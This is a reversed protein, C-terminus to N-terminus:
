VLRILASRVYFTQSSLTAGSSGATQQWRLEIKDGADCQMIASVACDGGGTLAARQSYSEQSVNSSNLRMITLAGSMTAQQAATYGSRTQYGTASIAYVGAETINWTKVTIAGTTGTASVYGTSDFGENVGEWTWDDPKGIVKDQTAKKGFAIGTGGKKINIIRNVPSIYYATQTDLEYNDVARFTMSYGTDADVLGNGLIYRQGPTIEYFDDEGDDIIVVPTAESSECYVGLSTISLVAPSATAWATISFYGGDMDRDGNSDCRYVNYTIEPPEHAQVTYARTLYAFASHSGVDTAIVEISVTSAIANTRTYAWVGTSVQTAKVTIPAQDDYILVRVDRITLDSEVTVTITASTIGAIYLANGGPYNSAVSVSTIKIAM